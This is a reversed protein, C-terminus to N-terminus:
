VWENVRPWSAVVSTGEVVHYSAYAAATMCAHNPLIRVRSGLPLREADAGPGRVLGHEQYAEEVKLGEMVDGSLDAVLGYGCDGEPGLSRTSRDKSLAMGGADVLVTGHAPQHGIVTALVTAAVDEVACCGLAVQYLDHFVCVGARAETVGDLHSAHVLTPTSGVSVIECPVGAEECCAAAHVVSAREDEAIAVIEDASRAEYAHGGHTYVGNFRTGPGGNLARALAVIAADDPLLGSRHEGSDIEVLADFIVGLEAERLAEMAAASDISLRVTTGGEVIAAIRGLKDPTVGVAYLIDSVGHSAFYEAEKVTSVTIGHSTASPILRSVDISKATKLHPRYRVGLAACRDETRQINTDMRSRDVILAPTQISSLDADSSTVPRAFWM